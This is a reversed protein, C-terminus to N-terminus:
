LQLVSGSVSSQWPLRLYVSRAGSLGVDVM